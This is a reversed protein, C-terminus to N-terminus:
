LYRLPLAAKIVDSFTCPDGDHHCNHIALVLGHLKPLYKAGSFIDFRIHFPDFANKFAYRSDLLAPLIYCKLASATLKKKPPTSERTTRAYADPFDQMSRSLVRSKSCVRLHLSPAISSWFSFSVM